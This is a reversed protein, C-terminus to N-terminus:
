LNFEKILMSLKNYTARNVSTLPLRLNNSVIGVSDLAAKIGGPSGDIFLQEIIDLLKYHIKRADEFKSDLSLKVMDSFEKPFLNAVVSIVGDGGNAIFPLTTGDDGSLVIFNKPRNKLIHTIQEFDGSAEKIAIINEIENALKITTEYTINCGTRGPVNYIIVPIPSAEAIVKFHFYLGKQSPKNYYPAVSLIADISDLDTSEITNIVEQTNNGGIGLVIPLRYNNIKIIYSLLEAKESQSLTVVEATTGMVVLYDVGNDIVHELLKGLSVYDISNDKNFPTVLAVGTGKIKKHTM